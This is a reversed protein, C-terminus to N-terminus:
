FRIVHVVVATGAGLAAGALVDTTFHRAAMLRMAGVGAAAALPWYRRFGRKHPMSLVYSTAAAFSISTHGSPMSRHSDVKTAAETADETYLVPRNRDLLAKSLQNLGATWGVAELSTAVRKWGGDQRSMDYWTAGLLGIELVTSAHSWTAQEPRVVWRDVGPLDDIECPACSPPGTNIDFVPGILALSAGGVASLIQSPPVRDVAGDEDQAWASAPLAGAALVLAVLAPQKWRTRGPRGDLRARELRMRAARIREM